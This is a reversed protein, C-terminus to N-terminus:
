QGRETKGIIRGEADRIVTADGEQTRTGTVEGATNRITTVNGETTATGTVKGNPDYYTTTGDATIKSSGTLEGDANRYVTINGWTTATSVTRGEADKIVTTWPTLQQSRLPQQCGELALWMIAIALSLLLFAYKM